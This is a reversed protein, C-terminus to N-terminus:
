VGLILSTSLVGFVMVAPLLQFRCRGLLLVLGVGTFPIFSMFSDWFSDCDIGFLSDCVFWFSPSCAIFVELFLRVVVGSWAWVAVCGACCVSPWVCPPRLCMCFTTVAFRGSGGVCM